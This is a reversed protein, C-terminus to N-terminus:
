LGVFSNYAHMHSKKTIAEVSFGKVLNTGGVMSAGFIVMLYMPSEMAYFSMTGYTKFWDRQIIRLIMKELRIDLFTSKEIFSRLTLFDEDDYLDDVYDFVEKRVNFRKMAKRAIDSLNTNNMEMINILAFKYAAYHFRADLEPYQAISYSSNVVHGLMRSYSEAVHKALTTNISKGSNFVENSKLGISGIQLLSFLTREDADFEGKSNWKISNSAISLNVIAAVKGNAMTLWFPFFFPLKNDKSLIPIVRGELVDNVVDNTMAYNYKRKFINLYHTLDSVDVVLDEIRMNDITSIVKNYVDLNNISLDKISKMIDGQLSNNIEQQPLYIVLFVIIISYAWKPSVRMIYIM